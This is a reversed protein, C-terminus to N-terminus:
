APEILLLRKAGASESRTTVRDDEALNVHVIRRESSNLDDLVAIRGTREVARALDQAATELLGRRAEFTGGLDLLCRIREGAHRSAAQATLLTLASVLEAERRLRSVDAGSLTYVVHEDQAEDIEVTIDLDLKGLLTELFDAGADIAAEM